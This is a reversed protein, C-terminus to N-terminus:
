ALLFGNELVLLQLVVYARVLTFLTHCCICVSVQEQKWVGESKEEETFWDTKLYTLNRFVYTLIM